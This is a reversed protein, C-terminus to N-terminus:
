AVAGRSDGDREAVRWLATLTVGALVVKLLDGLVFPVLGKALTELPSYGAALALWPLGVAYIAANGALMAAISSPVHRDWRREALRGVVAAALVFGLLYGGTAGLVIRGDRISGIVDVGSRGEAFTPIGVVGIALYAITAAAGRRRGLAAAAVLVGFTQGTLPVPNDPLRISVSASAAIVLVGLAVAAVAWVDRRHGLLRRGLTDPGTLTRAAAATM